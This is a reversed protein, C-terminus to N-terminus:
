RTNNHKGTSGAVIETVKMGDNYWGDFTYGLKELNELTITASEITYSTPNDNIADKTNEYTISYSVPTWQATLVLNGTSGAVIETVKTGDNYWGDFTYGLKEM